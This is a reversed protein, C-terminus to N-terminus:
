RPSSEDRGELTLRPNYPEEAKKVVELDVRGQKPQLLGQDVMKIEYINLTYTHDSYQFPERAVATLDSWPFSLGDPM